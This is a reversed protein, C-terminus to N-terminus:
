VENRAFLNGGSGGFEGFVKLKQYEFRTEHSLTAAPGDLVRLFFLQECEFRTEHSLTAASHFRLKVEKTKSVRIRNRASPKGGSWGFECFGETKSM